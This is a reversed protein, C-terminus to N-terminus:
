VTTLTSVTQVECHLLLAYVAYSRTLCRQWTKNFRASLWCCNNMPHSTSAWKQAVRWALHVGAHRFWCGNVLEYVTCLALTLCWERATVLKHSHTHTSHM